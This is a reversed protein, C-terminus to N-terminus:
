VDSDQARGDVCVHVYPTLTNTYTRASVAYSFSCGYKGYYTDDIELFDESPSGDFVTGDDRTYGTLVNVRARFPSSINFAGPRIYPLVLSNRLWAPLATLVDHVCRM